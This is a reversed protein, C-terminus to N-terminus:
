STYEKIYKLIDEKSVVEINPYTNIHEELNRRIQIQSRPVIWKQYDYKMFNDKMNKIHRDKNKHTLEVEVCYQKGDKHFIFDPRHLRNGFGDLRHLQKETTIDTLSLKYELIFYIATDLVAIDHPIQEVRIKDAKRSVGILVRGKHTLTHLYPFGYLIRKREVYGAETLVRLRRDASRQSAFSGLFRVHRSLCFRWRDLEQFVTYDGELLRM